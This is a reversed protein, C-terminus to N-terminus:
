DACTRTIKATQMMDSHEKTAPLEPVDLVALPLMSLLATHIEGDTSMMEFQCRGDTFVHLALQFAYFSVEILNDIDRDDQGDVLQCFFVPPLFGFDVQMHSSFIQVCFADRIVQICGNICQDVLEIALNHFVFGLHLIVLV